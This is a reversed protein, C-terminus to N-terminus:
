ISTQISITVNDGIKFGSAQGANIELVNDIAGSAQYMPLTSNDQGDKPPPANHTISVIKNNSIWVIDLPFKMERMWFYPESPPNFPFLMGTNSIISSRNSLGASQQDVTTALEVIFIRDDIHVTNIQAGSKTTASFNSLSSLRKLLLAGSAILLVAVALSAIIRSNM